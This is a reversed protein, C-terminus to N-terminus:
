ASVDVGFGDASAGTMDVVVQMVDGDSARISTVATKLDELDCSHSILRSLPLETTLIRDLVEDWESRAHRPFFQSNWTGTLTLEKCLIQRYLDRGLTISSVPRGILVVTGGRRAASVALRLGYESGTAEFVKDGGLNMTMEQLRSMTDRGAASLCGAYSFLDRCIEDAREIRRDRRGIVITQGAGQIDAWMATLVGVPGCGIVLCTDGGTVDARRVAHLAVAAPEIM